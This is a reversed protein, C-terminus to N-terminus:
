MKKIQLTIKSLWQRQLYTSYITVFNCERWAKLEKQPASNTPLATDIEINLINIIIINSIM